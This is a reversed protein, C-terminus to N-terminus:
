ASAGRAIACSAGGGVIRPLVLVAGDGAAALAAGEAVSAVGHVRLAVASRTVCRAQVALLAAEGVVDLPLGLLRAAPTVDGAKFSATALRVVRAGAQLEASRVLAALADAPCGRRCGLGAVLGPPEAGQM